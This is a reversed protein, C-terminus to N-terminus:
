YLFIYKCIVFMSFSVKALQGIPTYPSFDRSIAPRVYFLERIYEAKFLLWHGKWKAVWHLCFLFESDGTAM